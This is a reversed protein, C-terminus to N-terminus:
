LWDLDFDSCSADASGGLVESQNEYSSLHDVAGVRVNALRSLSEVDVSRVLFVFCDRIGVSDDFFSKGDRSDETPLHKSCSASDGVLEAQLAIRLM